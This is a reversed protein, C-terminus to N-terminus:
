STAPPQIAQGLQSAAEAFRRLAEALAPTSVPLPGSLSQIRAELRQELQQERQGLWALMGTQWEQFRPQLDDIVARQAEEAIERRQRAVSQIQTALRRTEEFQRLKEADFEDQIRHIAERHERRIDDLSSPDAVPMPQLRSELRDLRQGIGALQRGVLIERIREVQRTSSPDPPSHPM